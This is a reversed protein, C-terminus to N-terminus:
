APHAPCSGLRRTRREARVQSALADAALRAREYLSASRARTLPRPM